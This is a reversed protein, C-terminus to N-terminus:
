LAPLHDDWDEPRYEGTANLRDLRVEERRLGDRLTYLLSMVGHTIPSEYWTESKCYRHEVENLIGAMERLVVWVDGLTAPPLKAPAKNLAHALDRHALRKNRWEKAFAALTLLAAVRKAISAKVEGDSILDPLRQFTLNAKGMSEIPALLRTVSLLCEDWWSRQLLWFFFPAVRNMIEHRNGNGGYLEALEQFQWTLMTLEESLVTFLEGLDTGMASINNRRVEVSSQNM